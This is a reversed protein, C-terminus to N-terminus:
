FEQSFKLGIMRPRMRIGYPQVGCVGIACQTTIGL